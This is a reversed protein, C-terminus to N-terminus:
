DLGNFVACTTQSSRYYRETAVDGERGATEYTGGGRTASEAEAIFKNGTSAGRVSAYDPAPM